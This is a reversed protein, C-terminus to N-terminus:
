KALHIKSKRSKNIRNQVKKSKNNGNYFRSLLEDKSYSQGISNQLLTKKDYLGKHIASHHNPCVLILSKLSNDERGNIHHLNFTLDWAFFVVSM